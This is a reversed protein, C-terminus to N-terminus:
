PLLRHPTTPAGSASCHAQAEAAQAQVAAEAAPSNSAPVIVTTCCVGVNGCTDTSTVVILYVRGDSDDHRGARLSLTGNVLQADNGLDSQPEDSYVQVQLNGDSASATLGVDVMRKNPPWLNNVVVGCNVTPATTDFQIPVTQEETSCDGFPDCAIFVTLTYAAGPTLPNSPDLKLFASRQDASLTVTTIVYGNGQADLIMYHFFDSGTLPDLPEDFTAAVESGDCSGTAFLLDPADPPAQVQISVAAVASDLSGDNVKFQFADSGVYDQAPTYTLNPATGGLSGHAPSSVLIFTLANGDPDSGTLTIPVSVNATLVVFQDNATPARNPPPTDQVQISVTAPSSDATSDNVKFTFSDTGVFDLGPTYTVDPPTGSLAGQSPGTVISYSLADGDADSGTLTIALPVNKATSLSQNNAVPPANEVPAGVLLALDFGLDMSSAAQHVEVALLNAGATLLASSLTAEFFNTEDPPNVTTAALTTFTAPGSPMNSRFIEVGNLYVVAGDDRMLQVKLGPIAAPDAVTFNHRFYYTIHGFTLPTAIHPDNFGLPGFGSRWASDNFGPQTWFTGQDTGDALFKWVSRRPVLTQAGSEAPLLAALTLFALVSALWRPLLPNTRTMNGKVIVALKWIEAAARCVVHRLRM